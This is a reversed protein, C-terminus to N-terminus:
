LCIESYSGGITDIKGAFVSWHIDWYAGCVLEDATYRASFSFPSEPMRKIVFKEKALERRLAEEDSGM